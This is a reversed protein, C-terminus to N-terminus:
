LIQPTHSAFKARLWNNKASLWLLACTKSIKYVCNAGKNAKNKTIILSLM